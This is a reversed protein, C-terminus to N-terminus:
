QPKRFKEWDFSLEEEIDFDPLWKEEKDLYRHGVFYDNMDPSYFSPDDASLMSYESHKLEGRFSLEEFVEDIIGRVQDNRDSTNAFLVSDHRTFAPLEVAAIRSLIRELFIHAEITQLVVALPVGLNDTCMKQVTRLSTIVGPFMENLIPAISSPNRYHAFLLRMFETKAWSRPRGAQSAVKAYIDDSVLSDLFPKWVQEAIHEAIDEIWNKLKPYRSQKISELLKNSGSLLNALICPQSSRLDWAAFHEGELSIFPLLTGHLNSLSSHLRGNTRSISRYTAGSTISDIGYQASQLMFKQKRGYYKMHDGIYATKGDILLEAESYIMRVEQLKDLLPKLGWSKVYLTEAAHVVRDCNSSIDQQGEFDKAEAVTSAVVSYGSKRVIIPQMIDELERKARKSCISLLRLSEDFHRILEPFETNLSNSELNLNVEVPLSPGTFLTPNLRYRKARGKNVDYSGDTQFIKNAEVFKGENQDEKIQLFVNKYWKHSTVKNIFVTSFEAYFETETQALVLYRHWCIAILRLLHLQNIGTLELVNVASVLEEPLLLTLGQPPTEKIQQAKKSM